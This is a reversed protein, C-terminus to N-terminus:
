SVCAEALPVQCGDQDEKPYKQSPWINDKISAPVGRESWLPPAWVSMQRPTCICKERNSINAHFSATVSSCGKIEGPLLTKESYWIVANGYSPIPINTSHLHYPLICKTHFNCTSLMNGISIANFSISFFFYYGHQLGLNNTSIQVRYLWTAARQVSLHSECICTWRSPFDPGETWM